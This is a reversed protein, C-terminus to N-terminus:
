WTFKIAFIHTKTYIKAIYVGKSLSLMSFYENRTELVKFGQINYIEVKQCPESHKIAFSGSESRYIVPKTESSSLSSSNEGDNSMFADNIIVYKPYSAKYNYTKGSNPSKYFTKLAIGFTDAETYKVTVKKETSRSPTGGSFTWECSDALSLLEFTIPARIPVRTNSNSLRPIVDLVEIADTRSLESKAGNKSAEIKVDFLGANKYVVVPNKKSSTQTEGGDFSWKISEPLGLCSEYFYISDGSAIETTNSLFDADLDQSGDYLKLMDTQYIWNSKIPIINGNYLTDHGIVSEDQIFSVFSLDAVNMREKYPVSFTYTFTKETSSGMDLVQGLGSPKMFRTVHNIESLGYWEKQIHDQTLALHLVANANNESALKSVKVKIEFSDTMADKNRYHKASLTLDYPTTVNKCSDILKSLVTVSKHTEIGNTYVRPITRVSDYYNSRHYGAMNYLYAVSGTENVQYAVIAIPKGEKALQALMKTVEPCNNCWTASFDEILVHKYPYGGQAYSCESQICTVGLLAALLLGKSLLRSYFFSSKM